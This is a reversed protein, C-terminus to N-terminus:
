PAAIISSVDYQWFTNTCPDESCTTTLISRGDPSWALRTYDTKHVFTSTGTNVSYLWIGSNQFVRGYSYYAIWNGDPSWVLGAPSVKGHVVEKVTMAEADLMYMNWPVNRFGVPSGRVPALTAWFAIQDGQPSWSVAGMEGIKGDFLNPTGARSAQEFLRSQESDALNWTKWGDKLTLEVPRIGAADVWYLTSFRSYTSLVGTRMDPSWSFTIAGKFPLPEPTLRSLQDSQESYAALISDSSTTTRNFPCILGISNDPLATISSYYRGTCIPQGVPPFVLKDIPLQQWTHDIERQWIRVASKIGLGEAVDKTDQIVLRGDPLVTIYNIETVDDPTAYTSRPVALAMSNAYWGVFGFACLFAFCLLVAVLLKKKM